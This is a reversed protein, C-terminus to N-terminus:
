RVTGKRQETGNAEEDESIFTDCRVSPVGLDLGDFPTRCRADM